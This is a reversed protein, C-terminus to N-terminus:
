KQFKKYWSITKNLGEDFNTLSYNILGKIKKNCALHADVDSERRDKRIVKGEYEMKRSILDILDSIKIQNDSSINVSDGSKLVNFVKLISNVTDEVFIFDRSQNGSGHIEPAYGNIIRWITIPIVGAMYGLYNQRPGFNNFPRVIFADMGFMSFYSELALDAAAKGGAYSTLPNQINKMWQNM